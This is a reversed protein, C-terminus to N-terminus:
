RGQDLLAPVGDTWYNDAWVNNAYVPFENADTGWGLSFLNGTFTIDICDTWSACDIFRTAYYPGGAPDRKFYNDEITLNYAAAPTGDVRERYFVGAASCGGDQNTNSPVCVISNGRLTSNKLMRLGSQHSHTGDTTIYNGELTVQNHALLGSHTGQILSRKVVYHSCCAGRDQWNYESGELTQIIRSDEVTYVIPRSDNDNAADSAITAMGGRIVSNRFVIGQADEAFRVGEEECDVIKGDIIESSESADFYCDGAYTETPEVAPGVSSPTPFDAIVPIGSGSGFRISQGGSANTDSVTSTGGSLSASEPEASFMPGYSFALASVATLAVVGGSLPLALKKQLWPFRKTMHSMLRRHIRLAV